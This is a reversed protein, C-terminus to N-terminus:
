KHERPPFLICHKGGGEDTLLVRRKDACTYKPYHRCASDGLCPPYPATDIPTVDMTALDGRTVVRDQDCSLTVAVLTIGIIYLPARTM